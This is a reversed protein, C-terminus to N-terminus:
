AVAFSRALSAAQSADEAFGDAGIASAFESTVPAGGVIVKVHDLVGAERMADITLKMNPMTTTLLASMGVVQPKHTHIADIFANPNVYVCLDIM